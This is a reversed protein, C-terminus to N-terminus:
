EVFVNVDHQLKVHLTRHTLIVSKDWHQQNNPTNNDKTSFTPGKCREAAEMVRRQM